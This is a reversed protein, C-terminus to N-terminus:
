VGGAERIEASPYVAGDALELRADAIPGRLRLKRRAASIADVHVRFDSAHSCWSRLWTFVSIPTM